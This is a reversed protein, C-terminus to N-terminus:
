GSGPNSQSFASAFWHKSVFDYQDCLLLFEPQQIHQEPGAPLSAEVAERLGEPHSVASRQGCPDLLRDRPFASTTFQAVASSSIAQSGVGKM